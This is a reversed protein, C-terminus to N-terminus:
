PSWPEKAAKAEFLMTGRSGDSKAYSIALQGLWFGFSRAAGLQGLFRAEVSSEPEPCAM